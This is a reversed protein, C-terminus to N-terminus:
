PQTDIYLTIRKRLAEFLVPAFTEVSPAADLSYAPTGDITMAIAGAGLVRMRVVAALQWVLALDDDLDLSIGVTGNGKDDLTLASELDPATMPAGAASGPLAGSPPIRWFREQSPLSGFAHRARALLDTLVRAMDGRRLRRLEREMKLHEQLQFYFM